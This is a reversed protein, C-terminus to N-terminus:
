TNYLKFFNNKVKLHHQHEQHFDTSIDETGRKNNLLTIIHMNNNGLTFNRSMDINIPKICISNLSKTLLFLYEEGIPVKQPVWHLVLRERVKVHLPIVHLVENIASESETPRSHLQSDSNKIHGSAAFEVPGHDM